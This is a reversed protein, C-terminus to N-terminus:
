DITVTVSTDFVYHAVDVASLDVKMLRGAPVTYAFLTPTEVAGSPFSIADTGLSLLGGLPGILATAQQTETTPCALYSPGGWWLLDSPADPTPPTTRAAPATPGDACAALAFVAFTAALRLLRPRNMTLAKSRFAPTRPTRPPM